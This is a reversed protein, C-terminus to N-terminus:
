AALPEIDAYCSVDMHLADWLDVTAQMQMWVGPGNGFFRGLRHAMDPVLPRHGQILRNITVRAVGLRQALEGQSIGSEELLGSLVQGPTLPRATRGQLQAFRQEKTAM